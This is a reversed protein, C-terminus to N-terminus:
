AVSKPHHHDTPIVLVSRHAHVVVASSVGGLLASQVRSLGRAGVVIPEADLEEAVDCISRWIKGQVVRAEAKFGVSRALEAGREATQHAFESAIEDLGLSHTAFKSVPATVITAPDHSVWDAAREWVTLVVAVHPALVRGAAAIASAADESGDFCFLIPRAVNTRGDDAQTTNPDGTHM